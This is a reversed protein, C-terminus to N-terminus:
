RLHLGGIEDDNLSLGRDVAYPIRTGIILQVQQGQTQGLPVLQNCGCSSKGALEMRLGLQTM